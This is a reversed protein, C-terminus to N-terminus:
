HSVLTSAFIPVGCDLWRKRNDFLGRIGAQELIGVTRMCRIGRHTAASYGDGEDVLLLDANLEQVLLIADREGADLAALAVDAM